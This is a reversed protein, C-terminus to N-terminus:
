FAKLVLTCGQSLPLLATILHLLISLSSLTFFASCEKFNAGLLLVNRVTYAVVEM